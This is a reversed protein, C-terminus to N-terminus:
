DRFENCWNVSVSTEVYPLQKEDYKIIRVTTQFGDNELMNLAEFLEELSAYIPTTMQLQKKKTAELIKDQITEYLTSFFGDEQRMAENYADHATMRLM